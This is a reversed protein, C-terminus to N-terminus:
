LEERVIAACAAPHTMPGFHDMDDRHLYRGNPLREAIRAGIMAPGMDDIRGSIVLTDTTIEPLRDWTDHMGGTAFTGAETAPLCKLYVDGDAGVAFGHRVYAELADPTFANLPPKSAFNAIAEEFSPFSSRRRRASAVMPSELEDSERYEIHPFVIPEFAVIRRFLSPDRHAAMLLCAGGMSHGFAVIPEGAQEALWTAMATADDGYRQWDIDSAAFGAPLPTDGHGRYDFAVCRADSALESAMPQYSRGHFGTAHSFLLPSGGGGLEFVALEVGGSSPVRM